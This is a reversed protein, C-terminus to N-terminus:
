SWDEEPRNSNFYSLQRHTVVISWFLLSCGEQESYFRAWFFFFFSGQGPMLGLCCFAIPLWESM